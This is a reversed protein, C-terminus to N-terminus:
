SNLNHEYVALDLNSFVVFRIEEFVNDSYDNLFKKVTQIAIQSAEGKPYCFVGTSICPFAITKIKKDHALQMSNRYCSELLAPSKDGHRGYVPGVTHIVFDAPLNYGKTIKAEGTKCGGLIKCEELLEDGAAFHIAGDAGGGGLLTYNAANVIAEVKQKAIDDKIALIKTM